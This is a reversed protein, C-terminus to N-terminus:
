GESRGIVGGDDTSVRDGDKLPQKCAFVDNMLYDIVKRMRADYPPPTGAAFNVIAMLNLGPITQRCRITEPLSSPLGGAPVVLCSLDRPWVDATLTIRAIDEQQRNQVTPPWIDVYPAVGGVEHWVAVAKIRSHKLAFVGASDISVQECEGSLAGAYKLHDARATVATACLLWSLWVAIRAM